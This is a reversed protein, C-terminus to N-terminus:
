FKCVKRSKLLIGQISRDQMSDRIALQFTHVACRMCTTLPEMEIGSTGIIEQMNKLLSEEDTILLSLV